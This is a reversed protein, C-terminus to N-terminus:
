AMTALMRATVEHRLPEGALFLLAEDVATAGQRLYTEHTHGAIHPALVANKLTRLPSDEALPEEEFVDLVAVFRDKRLEEVLAAEDVIAGRATNVFLAGDKIRALEAAGIMHRTEPLSPVHLSVIDSEGLLRDLSTLEVGLTEADAASLFPDHVLVRADFAGFRVCSSGGSM